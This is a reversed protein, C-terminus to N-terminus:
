AEHDLIIVPHCCLDQEVKGQSTSILGSGWGEFELWPNLIGCNSSHVARYYIMLIKGTVAM